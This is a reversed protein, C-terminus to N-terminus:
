KKEGDPNSSFMGLIFVSLGALIIGLALMFFVASHRPDFATAKDYQEPLNEFLEAKLAPSLDAHRAITRGEVAVGAYSLADVLKGSPDFLSVTEGNNKLALKTVVYSFSVTGGSVIQGGPIVYSKGGSVTLKWGALPVPNKGNNYLAIYEGDADKGSPNPLFEKIQM